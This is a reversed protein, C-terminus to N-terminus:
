ARDETVRYRMSRPEPLIIANQPDLKAKPSSDEVEGSCSTAAIASKMRDIQHESQEQEDYSDIWPYQYAEYDQETLPVQPPNKGAVARWILSNCTRIYCKASHETSWADRGWPDSYVQPRVKGGPEVGPEASDPSVPELSEKAPDESIPSKGYFSASLPFALLRLAGIDSQGALQVNAAHDSELPLATFQRLSGSGLDYGDIWPQSTSVVYDQDEVDLGDTWLEGNLANIGQTGLKVAFPYNGEFRVWLAEAQFMPVLVGGRDLWTEPISSKLEEVKRLSFRGLDPPLRHQQEDEPLRLTRLLDIVCVAKEHVEPFSLHLRDHKLEIM